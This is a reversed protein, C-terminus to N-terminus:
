QDGRLAARIRRALAPRGLNDHEIEDALPEVRTVADAAAALLPAVEPLALVVDADHLAEDIVEGYTVCVWQAIAERLADRDVTSM